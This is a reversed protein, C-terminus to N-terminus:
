FREKHIRFWNINQIDDSDFFGCSVNFLTHPITWNIRYITQIEERNDEMWDIFINTREITDHPVANLAELTKKKSELWKIVDTDGRLHAMSLHTKTEELSYM